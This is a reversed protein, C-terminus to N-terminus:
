PRGAVRVGAPDESSPGGGAAIGDTQDVNSSPTPKRAREAPAPQWRLAFVATPQRQELLVSGGQAEMMADTLFLGLGLGRGAEVRDKFLREAVEAAIGPGADTVRLVVQDASAELSVQIPAGPQSYRDANTL